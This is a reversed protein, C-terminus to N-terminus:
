FAPIKSAQDGPNRGEDNAGRGAAALAAGRRHGNWVVESRKMSGVRRADNPM